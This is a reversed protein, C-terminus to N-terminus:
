QGLGKWAEGLQQSAAKRRVNEYARRELRSIELATDESMSAHVPVIASKAGSALANAADANSVSGQGLADKM